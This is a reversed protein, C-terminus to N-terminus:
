EAPPHSQWVIEGGVLTMVVRIAELRDSTVTKPNDDLVVLDALHGVEITGKSDEEFAASAGHTTFLQLAEEVSVRHRVFPNNVAAHIGMLPNIPTVPSDSGGCIKIGHDLFARFDEIRSARGEGLYQVYAGDPGGINYSFMPQMAAVIELDRAREIQDDSPLSFHEIRHRHDKRPSNALAKEYAKLIQEIAADGIAHMSVQLGSEHAEQVFSEVQQDTYFLMGRCGPLDQYPDSLAVTHELWAGDLALCGGIRPLGMDLVQNVDMTQFYPVIRLPMRPMTELLIKFVRDNEPSGDLAHLTTVGQTVAFDCARKIMGQIKEHSLSSFIRRHVEFHSQDTVYAGTPNGTTPNKEVGPSDPPLGIHQFGASNVVSSHCTNAVLWVPNEPSVRDLEDMTPNRKERLLRHVLQTGFVWHGSESHSIGDRILELVDNISRAGSLNVSEMSFGTLVLHTHSDIFGPLITKGELDIVRQSSLDAAPAHQGELLQTLRGNEIILTGRAIDRGAMTIIRGHALALSRTM